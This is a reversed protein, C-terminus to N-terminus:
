SRPIALSLVYAFTDYLLINNEVCPELTKVGYGAAIITQLKIM